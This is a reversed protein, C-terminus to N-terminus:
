ECPKERPEERYTEHFEKLPQLQDFWDDYTLLIIGASNTTDRLSTYHASGVGGQRGPVPPYCDRRVQLSTGDPPRPRPPIWWSMEM